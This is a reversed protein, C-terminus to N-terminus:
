VELGVNVELYMYVELVVYVELYVSVELGDDDLIVQFRSHVWMQM